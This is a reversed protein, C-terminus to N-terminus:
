ILAFAVSRQSLYPLASQVLLHPPPSYHSGKHGYVQELDGTPEADETL